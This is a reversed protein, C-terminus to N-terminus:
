SISSHTTISVHSNYIPSNYFKDILARKNGIKMNESQKEVFSKGYDYSFYVTTDENSTDPLEDPLPNKTLAVMVKSGEGAWHIIMQYHSDNLM